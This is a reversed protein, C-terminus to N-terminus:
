DDSLRDTCWERNVNRQQHRPTRLILTIVVGDEGQKVELGLIYHLLGLDTM